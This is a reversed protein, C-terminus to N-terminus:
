ARIDESRLAYLGTEFKLYPLIIVYYSFLGFLTVNRILIEYGEKILEDLWKELIEKNSILSVDQVQTFEYSPNDKSFQYPYHVM